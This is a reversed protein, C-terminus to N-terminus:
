KLMVVGQLMDPRTPIIHSDVYWDAIEDMQKVDQPTVATTPVANNAGIMEGYSAPISMAEAWIRGAEDKHDLSWANDAEATEFLVQLLDAHQKAFQSSAM